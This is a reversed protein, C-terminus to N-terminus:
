WASRATRPPLFISGASPRAAQPRRGAIRRRGAASAPLPQRARRACQRRPQRVDARGCHRRRDRSLQVLRRPCLGADPDRRGGADHVYRVCGARGAIDANRPAGPSRSAFRARARPSHRASRASKSRPRSCRTESWVHEGRCAGASGDRREADPWLAPRRYRGGDQVSSAPGIASIVLKSMRGDIRRRDRRAEAARDQEAFTKADVASFTVRDGPELLFIPDRHLQYTRVATRGLLHWGSPGALCQVGTQVGGISITGAPTLLRPNQRRPM